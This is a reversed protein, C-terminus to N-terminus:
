GLMTVMMWKDAAGLRKTPGGPCSVYGSLHEGSLHEGPCINGRVFSGPCTNGPCMKGPCTPNCRFFYQSTTVMKLHFEGLIQKIQNKALFFHPLLEGERPYKECVGKLTYM